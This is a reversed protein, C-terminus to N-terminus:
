CVHVTFCAPFSSFGAQLSSLLELLTQQQLAQPLEAAARAMIPM